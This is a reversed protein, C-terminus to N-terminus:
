RKEERSGFDGLLEIELELEIGEREHVRERVREILETVQVARAHGTNVIFNAHKESVLADGVRWGKCGCRDIVEGAKYGEGNKFVSGASYRSLPQASKRWSQHEKCDALSKERDKKELELQVKYVIGKIDSGRYTFGLDKGELWRWGKGGEFVQVKRLKRSIELGRAGANNIVAGGITGPIGALPELGGLGKDACWTALRSTSVGSYVEVKDKDIIVESMGRKVVLVVVGDFGNDSALINSGRGMVKLPLGCESSASIISELERRSDPVAVIAAPGGIHFTTLRSLHHGVLIRGRVEGEIRSHFDDIRKDLDYRATIM